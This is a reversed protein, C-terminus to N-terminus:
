YRLSLLRVFGIFLYINLGLSATLHDRRHLGKTVIQHRGKEHHKLRRKWGEREAMSLFFLSPFFSFDTQDLGGPGGSNIETAQLWLTRAAINGTSDVSCHHFPCEM